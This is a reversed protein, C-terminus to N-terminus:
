QVSLTHKRASEGHLDPSSHFEHKVKSLLYFVQEAISTIKYIRARAVDDLSPTADLYSDRVKRLTEGRLTEGQADTLQKVIPRLDEHRPDLSHIIALLVADIGEVLSTRLNGLAPYDTTGQLAECLDALQEELWSLLKHLTLKSNVDEADQNPYRVELDNLFEQIRAFLERTAKRLPDLSAGERVVNFYGSLMMLLRRQELDVLVLSTEVDGFSHDHAFKTSSQEELETKPWWRELLRGCPKLTSMTIPLWLPDSFVALLALQRELPFHDFSLIAAKMLPVDFYLEVYLLPVMVACFVMNYLSMYMAIQRSSGSLKSSIVYLILASGFYSGYIFMIALDVTLDITLDPSQNTTLHSAVTRAMAIGLILVATVSQVIFTLAAACLFSFIMLTERPWQKVADFWPYGDLSSGDLSQALDKLLVLGFILMGMGFLSAALPRFRSARASVMIASAIGLVYLSVLEIDFTVVFVLLSTGFSAGLIVPLARRVSLIGSQMMGVAIFVVAPMNQTIGGLLSGWAFAMGPNGTWRAAMMRLRRNTLTKLNETLFWMGAFFLGLAGVLGGLIEIM